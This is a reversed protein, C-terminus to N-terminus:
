KRKYDKHLLRITRYLLPNMKKLERRVDFNEHYFKEFGTALYEDDSRRSFAEHLHKARKLREERLFKSVGESDDVHHGIEHTFTSLVRDIGEQSIDIWIKNDLYYGVCDSKRPILTFSIMELGETYKFPFRVDRLRKFLLQPDYNLRKHVRVLTKSRNLLFFQAGDNQRPNCTAVTWKEM